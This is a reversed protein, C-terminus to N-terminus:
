IGVWRWLMACAVCTSHIHARARLRVCRLYIGEGFAAANRMLRTNSLNLLGANTISHMNEMSTGHYAVVSNKFAPQQQQQQQQQDTPPRSAFILSPVHNAAQMCAHM